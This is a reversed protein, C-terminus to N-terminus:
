PLETTLQEIAINAWFAHVMSVANQFPIAGSGEGAEVAYRSEKRERVNHKEEGFDAAAWQLHMCRAAESVEGLLSVCQTYRVLAFNESNMEKQMSCLSLLLAQGTRM